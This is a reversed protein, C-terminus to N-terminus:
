EQLQLWIPEVSDASEGAPFYFSVETKKDETTATEEEM